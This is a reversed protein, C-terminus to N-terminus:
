AAIAPPLEHRAGAPRHRLQRRDDAGPRRVHRTHGPRARGPGAARDGAAARVRALSRHEAHDPRQRPRRHDRAPRRRASAALIEGLRADFRELNAAYGAVDNRHGFQTDFDVLNAFILGASEQGMAALSRMWATTTTSPTPVARSAAAPLCIPSRASRGDGAVGAADAPGAADRRPPRCRTTTGTPPARSRARRASSPGRSSADWAWATAGRARYALECMRYLEAVPMITRTRRSRSCATPRRTSSRSAGTRVHEDGLRTSSRRAPPWTTASRAAASARARVRRHARASLRAPFTPFPRDLM